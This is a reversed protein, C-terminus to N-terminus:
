RAEIVDIDKGQLYSSLSSTMSLILQLTELGFLFEFDCIATLLSYSEQSTKPDHDDVLELLTKAVAGIQTKVAKVSTYSCVWRTGSQSKLTFKENMSDGIRKFVAHRKTSGEIFNYLRQTTGLAKKMALVNSLTGQVALNLRHGYCHVYLSRPAVGKLLAQVGNYKGKM